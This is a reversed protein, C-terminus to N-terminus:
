VARGGDNTAPLFRDKPASSAVCCAPIETKGTQLMAPVHLLIAEVQFRHVPNLPQYVPPILVLCSLACRNEPATKIRQLANVSCCYANQVQAVTEAKTETANM